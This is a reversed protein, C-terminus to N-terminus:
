TNHTHTFLNSHIYTYSPADTYILIDTNLQTVGDADNAPLVEWVLPRVEDLLHDGLETTSVEVDDVADQAGSVGDELPLLLTNTNNNDM